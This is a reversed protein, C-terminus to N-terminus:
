RASERLEAARARRVTARAVTSAVVLLVIATAATYAGLSVLDIEAPIDPSNSDATGLRIKGLIVWQAVVGAVVGASAAVGLTIALEVLGARAVTRRSVGVVRLSAADRRRGPMGVVLHAGVGAIALVVLAVAVVLYLRLSLAYADNALSDREDALSLPQDLSVGAVTLADAVSAPMGDRALVYTAPNQSDSIEAERLYSTLDVMVGTRGLFPLAEVVGVVEAPVYLGESGAYLAPAGDAHDAVPLRVDSTALMPRVDPVDTPTITALVSRDPSDVAMVLGDDGPTVSAVPEGDDGPYPRAARWSGPETWGVDVPQGDVALGHLVVEGEMADPSGAM